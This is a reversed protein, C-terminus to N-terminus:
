DKSTGNTSDGKTSQNHYTVAQMTLFDQGFYDVWTKDGVTNAWRAFRAILKNKVWDPQVACSQQVKFIDELHRQIDLDTDSMKQWFPQDTPGFRKEFETCTRKIIIDIDPSLHDSVLKRVAEYQELADELGDCYVFGNFHGNSYHRTDMGVKGHMTTLDGDILPSSNMLNNFQIAEEFNRVKVVIKYCRFRCYEPVLDFFNFMIAHWLHCHRLSTTYGFFIWNGQPQMMKSETIILGTDHDIYGLGSKLIRDIGNSIRDNNFYLKRWM